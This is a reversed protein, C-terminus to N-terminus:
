FTFAMGNGGHGRLGFPEPWISMPLARLVSPVSVFFSYIISKSM